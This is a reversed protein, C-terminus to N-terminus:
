EHANRTSKFNITLMASIGESKLHPSWLVANQLSRLYSIIQTGCLITFPNLSSVGWGVGTALGSLLCYFYSASFFSHFLWLFACKAPCILHEYLYGAHLQPNKQKDLSNLTVCQNKGSLFTDFAHVASFSTNFM